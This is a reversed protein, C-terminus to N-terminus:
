HTVSFRCASAGAPNTVRAFYMGSALRRCDFTYNGSVTADLLRAGSVSFLELRSPSETGTAFTVRNRAPSPSVSLLPATAVPVEAVGVPHSGITIQFDVPQMYPRGADTYSIELRLSVPTNPPIGSSASLAFQSTNNATQSRRPCNPFSKVSDLVTVGSHRSVLKASIGYASDLPHCARNKVAFWINAAEGPDLQGNNNGNADNVTVSVKEFFVGSLRTLYYLNPINKNCESRIFASDNYGYWFDNTSLECTFAYTVFKGATDSYEWDVSVGNCPYITQYIQGTRSQSYGNNVRFTDVMEQLVARDPPTTNAYGWPYMNYQGYTHYDMCTRFLRENMFDRIVQTEPESFRSPGRYTEDAPNSSSGNSSYGWKYGYNRNLDVGINPPVPGRRNKRWNASAGGSDSNYVYGDPNMVPIIYIERNNVLWTSVSDRGYESLIREAFMVCCHTSLPERAHTAGNFFCAPEDEAVSPNDSIKLGWLARGQFSLGASFKTCLTPYRSVLYDLTDELEWYTLFYGFNRGADIDYPDVGTVYRFKERIDPWVVEARLGASRIRALQEDDTNIVLYGGDEDEDWTCVDLEGALDGLLSLTRIDDFYVRAEMIQGSRDLAFATTAALFGLAVFMVASRM